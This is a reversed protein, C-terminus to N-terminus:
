SVAISYPTAIRGTSDFTLGSFTVTKSSAAHTLTYETPTLYTDNVTVATYVGASGDPWTFNASVIVYEQATGATGYTVASVRSAWVDATAWEILQENDVNAGLRKKAWSVVASALVTPGDVAGAKLTGDADHAAALADDLSSLPANFTAANAAAGTGIATHFVTGM